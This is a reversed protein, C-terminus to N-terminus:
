LLLISRVLQKASWDRAGLEKAKLLGKKNFIYTVPLSDEPFYKLKDDEAVRAVKLSPSLDSFSRSLFSKVIGLPETSIAVVFIQNKNNEALRSLSSLEEVCPPCWTAWFNIVLPKKERLCYLDIINGYIDKFLWDIPTDALKTLKDIRSLPSKFPQKTEVLFAQRCPTKIKRSVPNQTILPAKLDAQSLKAGKFYSFFDKGLWTYFLICGFLFILFFYKRKKNFFYAKM